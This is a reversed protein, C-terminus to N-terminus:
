VHPQELLPVLEDASICTIGMNRMDLINSAAISENQASCADTVVITRYDLSMADVATGRICNPYQTGAIIVTQVGLRRLLMDLGTQFFASFRCKSIVHEDPLPALEDVIRAGPTGPVCVGPGETFLPVRWIEANSGDRNYHRIVHVRVWNKSRAQELLMKIVPITAAAGAVQLPAGPLVFDNQMDIVLLANTM